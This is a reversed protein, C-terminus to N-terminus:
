VAASYIPYRVGIGVTAGAGRGSRSGFRCFSIHAGELSPTRYGAPLTAAIVYFRGPTLPKIEVAMAPDGPVAANVNM